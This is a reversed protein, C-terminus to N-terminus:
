YGSGFGLGAAIGLVARRVAQDRAAPKVPEAVTKVSPLVFTQLNNGAAYALAVRLRDEIREATLTERRSVYPIIQMNHIGERCANEAEVIDFSDIALARDRLWKTDATHQLSNAGFNHGNRTEGNESGPAVNKQPGYKRIYDTIEDVLDIYASNM